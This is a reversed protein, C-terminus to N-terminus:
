AAVPSQLIARVQRIMDGALFPKPLFDTPGGEALARLTEPCPRGSMMLLPLGPSLARLRFALRADHSDSLCCDVLALGVSDRHSEFWSLCEAASCAFHVNSVVRALIVKLLIRVHEDDEVVLVHARERTTVGFTEASLSSIAPM